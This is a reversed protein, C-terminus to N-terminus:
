GSILKLQKPILETTLIQWTELIFTEIITKDYKEVLEAFDKAEYDNLNFEGNTIFIYPIRYRLLTEKACRRGTTDFDYLSLLKTSDGRVRDLLFKYELESLIKNESSLNVVGITLGLINNNFLHNGIALRDKSSKTILILDYEINLDINRLGELCSANTIFKSRHKRDRLPFYLKILCTGRSNIGLIYAYCPDSSDYYYKPEPNSSRNIYYQDVPIVGNNYLFNYDIRWKDWIVKDSYDFNRPVLEIITDKDRAKALSQKISSNLEENITGGYFFASFSISIHKLIDYFDRKNSVNYIRDSETNLVFAVADFCDGWFYGGFDRCKLKGRNNYAFGMSGDFDNNRITSKILSNYKICRNITNIDIDFYLSFIQEQTVKSLVYNKTLDIRRM